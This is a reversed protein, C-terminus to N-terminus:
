EHSGLRLATTRLQYDAPVSIITFERILELGAAGAASQVAADGELEATLWEEFIEVAEAVILSYTHHFPAAEQPPELAGIAEALDRWKLVEREAAGPRQGGGAGAVPLPTPDFAAREAAQYEAMYTSLPDVRMEYIATEMRALRDFLPIWHQEWNVRVSASLTQYLAPDRAAIALAMEAFLAAREAVVAVLESHFEVLDPPAELLRYADLRQSLAAGTAVYAQGLQDDTEAEEIGIQARIELVPDEAELLVALYVAHADTLFLTTTTVQNADLEAFIDITTTSAKEGGCGAATLLTLVLAGGLALTSPAPHPAM